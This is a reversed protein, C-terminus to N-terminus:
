VLTCAQFSGYFKVRTVTSAKPGEALLTAIRYHDIICRWDKICTDALYRRSFPPNSGHSCIV